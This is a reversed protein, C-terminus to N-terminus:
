GAISPLDGSQGFDLANNALAEQIGPGAARIYVFEFTIGEKKFEEEFLRNAQVFGMPGTSVPKNFSGAVQGIRIVKPYDAAFAATTGLAALALAITIISKFIKKM